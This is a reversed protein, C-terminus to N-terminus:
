PVGAVPSRVNAEVASNVISETVAAHSENAAAPVMSMKEVVCGDRTHVDGHNMVDIVGLHHMTIHTPYTEVARASTIKAGGRLLLAEVMLAVELASRHLHLMFM